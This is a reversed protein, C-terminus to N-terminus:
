GILKYNKDTLSLTKSAANKKVLDAPVFNYITKAISYVHTDVPIAELKDMSMLAICDAVKKGIGPIKILEQVVENYTKDRLSLLWSKDKFNQKIYLAAQYIFKARYGFSLVRLKDEVDKEALRDITPFEFYEVDNIKGIPEGFNKCMNAVMQTIRKINNNSSCIFCFLNEVPDLRLVRIGSLVDPYFQVKEKFKSDKKSWDGYLDQLNEKLQFYDHLESEIDQSEYKLNNKFFCSYEIQNKSAVQKLFYIKNGIVGNFELEDGSTSESDNLNKLENTIHNWRFSMGGKLCFKLNLENKAINKLVGKVVSLSM